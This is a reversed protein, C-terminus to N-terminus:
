PLPRERWGIATLFCRAYREPAEDAPVGYIAPLDRRTVADGVVAAMLMSVAADTDAEPSALSADVLRHVYARLAPFGATISAGADEVRGSHEEAGAFCQRLLLAAHQLRLIESEIWAALEALPEKPRSPLRTTQEQTACRQIAEDLLADKSGFHRFLTVENVGAAEAIRRTTAGAVGHHAFVEAAAALLRIRVPPSPTLSSPRM